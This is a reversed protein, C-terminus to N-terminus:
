LRRSLAAEQEAVVREAEEAVHEAVVAAVFRPAIRV